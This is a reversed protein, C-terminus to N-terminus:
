KRLVREIKNFLDPNIPLNKSFELDNGKRDYLGWLKLIENSAISLSTGELEIKQSNEFLEKPIKTLKSAGKIVITNEELTVMELDAKSGDDRKIVFLGERTEGIYGLNEIVNKIKKFDNKLVLMDVDKHPRSIEGRLADFGFGAFITYYIENEEFAKTLERLADLTMLYEM